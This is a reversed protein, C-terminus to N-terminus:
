RLLLTIPRSLGQRRVHSRRAGKAAANRALGKEYCCFGNATGIFPLFFHHLAASTENGMRHVKEFGTQVFGSRPPRKAHLLHLRRFKPIARHVAGVSSHRRDTRSAIHRHADIVAGFEWDPLAKSFRNFKWLVADPGGM